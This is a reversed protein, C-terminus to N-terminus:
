SLLPIDSDHQGEHATAPSSSYVSLENQISRRLEHACKISRTARASTCSHLRSAQGARKRSSNINILQMCSQGGGAVCSWCIRVVVRLEFDRCHWRRSAVACTGHTPCTSLAAPCVQFTCDGQQATWQAGLTLWGAQLLEKHHHAQHHQVTSYRPRKRTSWKPM